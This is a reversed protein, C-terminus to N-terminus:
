IAKPPLLLIYLSTLFTLIAMITFLIQFGYTSVIYGGLVAGVALIIYNGAEWLGWESAEKNKDLNKSYLSDFAPAYLAEGFGIIIQALFLTWIHNTFVLLAFGVAMIIYGFAMVLKGQKSRDIFRGIGIVTLAASIAFLSSAFAADLIDGGIDKVFLAYLPAFMAGSLLVVMNTGLLIKIHKNVTTNTKRSFFM